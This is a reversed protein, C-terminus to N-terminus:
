YREGRRDYELSLGIRSEREGALDRPWLRSADLMDRAMCPRQGMIGAYFIMFGTRRGRGGGRLGLGREREGERGGGVGGVVGGAREGEVGNGAGAGAGAGGRGRGAGWGGEAGQGM